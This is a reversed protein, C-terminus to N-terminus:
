LIKESFKNAFETLKEFDMASIYEKELEDHVAKAKQLVEAASILLQKIIKSNFNMKQKSSNLKKEDYFRQAHIRRIKTNFHQFSYERMICLSLEPIIVGDCITSPLFPNKVTIVEYGCKIGREKAASIIENAAFGNRDDIIIKNEYNEVATNAYSVVGKPTIGCLFRVWERGKKNSDPIRKKCLTEAFKQIKLMDACVSAKRFNDKILQGAAKLYRSASKHLMKNEKTLKLIIETKGDLYERDWFQGFNLIEECIGPFLPEVVHPATGDMVAIKKDPFIVADLSEPDSSCPFLETKINKDNAKAVLFKMFSSKGTGPGGKIIYAKWGDFPNYSDGFHSVFGESSNAGLFFKTISKEM